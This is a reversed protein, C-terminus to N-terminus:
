TNSNGLKSINATKLNVYIGLVTFCEFCFTVLKKAVFAKNQTLIQQIYLDNFIVEDLIVQM